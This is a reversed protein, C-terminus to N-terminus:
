IEVIKYDRDLHRKSDAVIKKIEDQTLYEGANIKAEAEDLRKHYQNLFNERAESLQTLEARVEEMTYTRDLGAEYRRVREDLEAIFDEDEAWDFAPAMQDEFLSYINEIKKDNATRIYDYLRARIATTTM